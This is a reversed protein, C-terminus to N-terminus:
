LDFRADFLLDPDHRPLTLFLTSLTRPVKGEYRRRGNVIITVDSSLDVLPEGLLLTLGSSDKPDSLNTVEITNGEKAEVQVIAGHRPKEWYLWYFQRKWDFVPQWLFKRPRAVREHKV